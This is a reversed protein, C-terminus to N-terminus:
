LHKAFFKLIKTKHKKYDYPVKLFPTTSTKENNIDHSLPFLPGFTECHIREPGCRNNFDVYYDVVKAQFGSSLRPLLNALSSGGSHGIIGWTKLDFDKRNQIIHQTVLAEYVHLGMLSFGHAWLDKAVINEASEDKYCDHARIRPIAVAYGEEALQRGLYKRAMADPHDGHGHLALIAKQPVKNKPTLLLIDFRGVHPDVVEIVEENVTTGPKQHYTEVQRTAQIDNLLFGINMKEIIEDKLQQATLGQAPPAKKKKMKKLWTTVQAEGVSKQHAQHRVSFTRYAEECRHKQCPYRSKSKEVNTITRKFNKKKKKKQQVKKAPSTAKTTPALPVPRPCAANLALFFGLLACIQLSTPRM